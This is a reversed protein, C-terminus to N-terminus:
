STVMTFDSMQNSYLLHLSKKLWPVESLESKWEYRNDVRIMIQKTNLNVKPLLWEHGLKTYKSHTTMPVLSELIAMATLYKHLLKLYVKNKKTSM